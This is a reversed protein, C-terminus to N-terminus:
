NKPLHKEEFKEKSFLELGHKVQASNLAHKIGLRYMLPLNNAEEDIVKYVQEMSPWSEKSAM